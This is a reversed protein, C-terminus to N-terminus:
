GHILLLPPGEHSSSFMEACKGLATTQDRNLGYQGAVEQSLNLQFTIVHIGMLYLSESWIGKTPPVASTAGGVVTAVGVAVGDVVSTAGGVAVGEVITCDIGEEGSRGGHNEGHLVM